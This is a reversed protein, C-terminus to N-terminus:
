IVVFKNSYGSFAKVNGFVPKYYGFHCIRYEGIPVDASVYWTITVKSGAIGTRQWEYKTEWNADTAVIKWSENVKKQIELLNYDSLNGTRPNASVFKAKVTKGRPVAARPQVVCDGFHNFIALDFIVPLTFHILSSEPVPAPAVGVDFDKNKMLSSLLNKFVHQYIALTYPGYLTSAAEYRQMQYEEYTTVYSSYSNCLGAIIIESDSSGGNAVFVKKLSRRLRRGAMTTFESPVAALIVNGLVAIQVSVISPHWRYPFDARGTNLLIPKPTHCNIDEVTPAAALKHIFNWISNISKTGQRFYFQGPGDTTGAAFSYGLSPLCGRAMVETGNKFNLKVVQKPMNIYQHGFKIKGSVEKGKENQLLDLAKKFLRTGIIETSEFIDKGPGSAVCQQSKGNCSSTVDECPKGSDVCHPGNINPSADGLNTSAFSAVFPGKGILADGNIHQELKISAYGVNDTSVLTNTNNMSTPHIPFWNIAGLLKNSPTAKFQLQVMEKDVNYSYKKRELEPNLLYALPSRNINANLLTGTNFLIKAHQMTNHAMIIAKVIGKHIAEFTEHVFGRTSVDYIVEQMYGGPTSHTHTASLILNQENYTDDYLLKLQELVKLRLASGVMASDISVFAIRDTEDEVVYSRAYQRLHLGSGLQSPNAYGLVFTDRLGSDVSRLSENTEWNSDTAVVKWKDNIQQEVKLFTKDQMLNNRPNSSVFTATVTTGRKATSPPQLICDGHLHSLLPADFIVPLTFSLLKKSIDAPEPDEDLPADNLLSEILQKYVNLYLTLTHPGYITSAAEYRQLEYEEPTVVYSSYSNSLGAIVVDTPISGGYRSFATTVAKRLRRGSMTTFEGPVAVIAIYGLLIIQTSVINPQWRYPVTMRGTALFIPKPYHCKIDEQSPEALLNRVFNWLPNQSTTGQKFDFAGPGDTTGAAFAYGMAPLCGKVQMQSGNPFTHYAIQKPMNVYRHRYELPGDVERADNSDLLELANTFLRGAIIQTSEFMTNGPGSAICQQSFGNCTSTVDDCPQGSNICKPGKINPSVDGLNSSAFAAVFPGKGILADKNIHQEFLVSAYGVNDSSILTNTNNMSTPHIPFWNLAGLLNNSPFAVFKLQVLEKDVNYSYENRENEPNLLYAQPSRNVNVDFVTKSSIFIKADQLSDHAKIVAKIIGLHIAEFTQRVFGFSTIDYLLDMMFGGPTSHTHTASIIVNQDNYMPGYKKQLSNLVQKRLGYGIMATDISVFVIKQLHKKIIFARAYQRLHIGTGKQFPSGYGLFGINGAPGTIDSIGVGVQYLANSFVLVHLIVISGIQIM